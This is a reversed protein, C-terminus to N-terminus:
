SGSSVRAGASGAGALVLIRARRSRLVGGFWGTDRRYWTRVYVQAAATVVWVPVAARLTGDARRVRIRLERGHQAGGPGERVMRGAECTSRDTTRYREVDERVLAELVRAPSAGASPEGVAEAYRVYCPALRFGLNPRRLIRGASGGTPM